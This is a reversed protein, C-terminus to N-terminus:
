MTLVTTWYCAGIKCQSTNLKETYLNQKEVKQSRTVKLNFCICETTKTASIEMVKREENIKEEIERM